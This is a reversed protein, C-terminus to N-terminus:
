GAGRTAARGEDMFTRFKERWRDRRVVWLATLGVVFAAVLLMRLAMLPTPDVRMALVFVGAIVSGALPWLMRLTSTFGAFEPPMATTTASSSAPDPADRVISVVAGCAAVWAAPVCLAFAAAAHAPDAVTVVLAALLAFPVLAIAPVILHPAMLNGRELPIGDGLDPHDIEQSLPELAELGLLNGALGVVVLAPTTGAATIAAAIGATIALLAMRILRSTPFRGISRADRLVVTAILGHRRARWGDIPRIPRQRPHEGRLQRRLLVVTRLDQMTVAFRLQAVLNARRVLPEVRLRDCVVLAVIVAATIAAVAVLDVPHTRMGWLALSGIGDGPGPFQWVAAAIQWVSAVLAISTAVPRSIRLAHIIVAIAVFAMGCLVGASGTAITWSTASGPLRRSALQGAIGGVIAGGFALSRLRQFVPRLLVERRSVPALMLHRADGAELAIPGGDSGSRLGLAIAAIAFLGLVAPGRDAVDAVQTAALPEDTVLDSLLAIAIGGALAALYVRYAIEFWELEGLRNRRRTRRLEDVVSM